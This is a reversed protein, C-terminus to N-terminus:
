RLMEGEEPEATSREGGPRAGPGCKTMVGDKTRTCVTFVMMIIAQLSDMLLVQEWAIGLAV